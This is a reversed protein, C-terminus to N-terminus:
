LGLPLLLLFEVGELVVVVEQDVGEERSGVLDEMRLGSVGVECLSGQM